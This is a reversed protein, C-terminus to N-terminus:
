SARAHAFAKRELAAPGAEVDVKEMVVDMVYEVAGQIDEGFEYIQASAEFVEGLLEEPDKVAARAQALSESTAVEEKVEVGAMRYLGSGGVVGIRRESM